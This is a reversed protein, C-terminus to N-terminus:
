KNKLFQIETKLKEKEQKLEKIAEIFYATLGTYNV